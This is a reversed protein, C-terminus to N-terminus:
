WCPAKTNAGTILYM